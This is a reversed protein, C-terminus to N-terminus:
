IRMERFSTLTLPKKKTQVVLLYVTKVLKKVIEYMSWTYLSFMVVNYDTPFVLRCFFSRLVVKHGMLVSWTLHPLLEGPHPKAFVALTCEALLVGHGYVGRGAGECLCIVVSSWLHGCIAVSPWGCIALWLHGVVSPWLHGCIVVSPWLHGCIALWLHGCIAM